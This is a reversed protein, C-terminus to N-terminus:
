QVVRTQEVLPKHQKRVYAPPPLCGWEPLLPPLREAGEVGGTHLVRRPSIGLATWCPLSSICGRRGWTWPVPLALLGQHSRLACAAPRGAQPPARPLSTHASVHRGPSTGGAGALQGPPFPESCSMFTPAGDFARGGASRPGAVQAPM